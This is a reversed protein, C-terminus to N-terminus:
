SFTLCVNLKDLFQKKTKFKHLRMLPLEIKLNEVIAPNPIKELDTVIITTKNKEHNSVVNFINRQDWVCLFEEELEFPVVHMKDYNFDLWNSVISTHLTSPTNQRIQRKFYHPTWCRGVLQISHTELYKKLMEINSTEFKNNIYYIRLKLVERYALRLTLDLYSSDFIPKIEMEILEEIKYSNIRIKSAKGCILCSSYTTIFDKVTFKRV